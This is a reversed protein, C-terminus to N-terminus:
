EDTVESLLPYKVLDYAQRLLRAIVERLVIDKIGAESIEPMYFEPEASGLYRVVWSNWEARDDHNRWRGIHAAICNVEIDLVFSHYPDDSYDHLTKKWVNM